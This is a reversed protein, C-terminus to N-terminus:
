TLSSQQWKMAYENKKINQITEYYVFMRKLKRGNRMLSIYLYNTSSVNASIRGLCLTNHKKDEVVTSIFMRNIYEAKGTKYQVAEAWTCGFCRVWVCKIIRVEIHCCSQYPLKRHVATAVISRWKVATSPDSKASISGQNFQNQYIRICSYRVNYQLYNM